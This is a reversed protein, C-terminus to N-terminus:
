YIYKLSLIYNRYMSSVNICLLINRSISLIVVYLAHFFHTHSASLCYLHFFLLYRSIRRSNREYKSEFYLKVTQRNTRIQIM